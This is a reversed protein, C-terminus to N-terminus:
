VGGCARFLVLWYCIGSEYGGFMCVLCGWGLNWVEFLVASRDAGFFVVMVAIFCVIIMVFVVDFILWVM